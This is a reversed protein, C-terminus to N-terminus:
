PLWRSDHGRELRLKLEEAQEFTQIGAATLGSLFGRLYNLQEMLCPDKLTRARYDELEARLHPLVAGPDALAILDDFYQNVAAIAVPETLPGSKNM